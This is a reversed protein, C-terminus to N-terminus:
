FKFKNRNCRENGRELARFHATERSYEGTQWSNTTVVEGISCTLLIATTQVEEQRVTVHIVHYSVSLINYRNM